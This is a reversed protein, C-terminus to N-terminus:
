QRSHWTRNQRIVTTLSWLLWSPEIESPWQSWPPHIIVMALPFTLKGQMKLLITSESVKTVPKTLKNPLLKNLSLKRRKKKSIKPIKEFLKPHFNPCDWIEKKTPSLLFMGSNKKKTGNLILFLITLNSHVWSFPFFLQSNKSKNKNNESLILYNKKKMKMSM